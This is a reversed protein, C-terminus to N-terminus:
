DRIAALSEEIIQKKSHLEKIIMREAESKADEDNKSTLIHWQWDYSTSNGASDVETIRRNIFSCNLAYISDVRSIIADIHGTLTVLDYAIEPTKKPSFKSIALEFLGRYRPKETELFYCTNSKKWEFTM